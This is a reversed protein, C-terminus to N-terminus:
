RNTRAAAGGDVSIVTGSVYSARDSCLFTVVDAIEEVTAPRGFPFGKTLERWREPDGLDKQAQNRWRVVGRDTATASPNLGIVRVGHNPSDAGLARSFAMLGANAMSGAIYGPTPREGAGGIINVIVGRKRECMAAYIARSLNIYGFVKLDWSDRWAKEDLGTLTGQPIAGANNVLIDVGKCTEGLKRANDSVALDLAHCTVNVKHAALIRSRAAELDAANRSSLHLHCGEAALSQAVGLGIGRSGGTILATRGSLKLDM